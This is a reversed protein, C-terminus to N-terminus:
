FDLFGNLFAWVTLTIVIPILALTIGALVGYFKWLSKNNKFALELEQVSNSLFYNRLRAGFSYIFKSPF